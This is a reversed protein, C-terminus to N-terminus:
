LTRIGHTLLSVLQTFSDDLDQDLPHGDGMELHAFGHFASRLARAADVRESDTLDYAVLARSLVEVVRNVAAELEPDGACPYRDTATYLGPHDRVMQRWATAMALVADDAALGTAADVLRTALVTRGRLGLARILEDFSAVHRYLAPQSSGLERAVRSLSVADLGEDDAIRQATEVVLDTTLPTRSPM